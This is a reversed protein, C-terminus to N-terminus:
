KEYKGINTHAMLVFNACKITFLYRKTADYNLNTYLQVLTM